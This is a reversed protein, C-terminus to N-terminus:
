YDEPRLFCLGDGDFILWIKGKEIVRLKMYDTDEADPVALLALGRTILELRKKQDEYGDAYLNATFVTDMGLFIGVSALVGDEVAQQRTYKFILNYGEDSEEAM